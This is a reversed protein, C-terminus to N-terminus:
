LARLLVLFLAQAFLLCEHQDLAMDGNRDFEKYLACMDFKAPPGPWGKEDFIEYVFQRIEGANWELKRSRNWDVRRFVKLVDRTFRDVDQLWNEVEARRAPDAFLPKVCDMISVHEECTVSM